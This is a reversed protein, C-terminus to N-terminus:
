RKLKQELVPRHGWFALHRPFNSMERQECVQPDSMEEFM